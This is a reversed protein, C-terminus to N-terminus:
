LEYKISDYFWDVVPNPIMDTVRIKNDLWLCDLNRIRSLATYLQGPAFCGNGLKLYISNLTQGQAKHITCAYAIAIPFQTFVGVKKAKIRPAKGDIDLQYKYSFWTNRTVNVLRGSALQIGIHDQSICSVTGIDGNVYEFGSDCIYDPRRKNALLMVKAGIKLLLQGETPYENVPFNGYITAPFLMPQGSLNALQAGNIQSALRRTGCLALTNPSALCDTDPIENVARSNLTDLVAFTNTNNRISRLLHCYEPSNQRFSECLYYNRFAAMQWANSMFAYEGNYQYDLFEAIEADSIVPPLQKFDGVVIIQRGGFAPNRSQGLYPVARLIQEISDFLDSRVMSIEDIIITAVFPLMRDLHQNIELCYGVSGPDIAFFSHITQAEGINRAALGTPALCIVNGSNAHEQVFKKVIISKGTGADGFLAVNEGRQMADYVQQQQPSLDYNITYM